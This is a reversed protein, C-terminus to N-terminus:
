AVLRPRAARRRGSPARRLRRWAYAAAGSAALWALGAGTVAALGAVRRRSEGRAVPYVAQMLRAGRGQARADIAQVVRADYPDVIVRDTLGM